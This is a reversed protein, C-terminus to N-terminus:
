YEGFNYGGFRVCGFGCVGFDGGMSGFGCVGFDGGMSGFRFYGLDEIM